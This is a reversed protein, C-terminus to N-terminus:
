NDDVCNYFVVGDVTTLLTKSLDQDNLVNIMITIDDRGCTKALDKCSNSMKIQNNVMTDWSEKAEENGSKALVTALSIQDEWVSILIMDDQTDVTYHQFSDEMTSEILSAVDETSMAVSSSDVAAEETPEPTPEVTPEPTPAPTETAVPTATPAPNTTETKSTPSLAIALVFLVVPIVINLPKQGASGLKEQIQPIPAVWAAAVLLFITSVSAGTGFVMFLLFAAVVWRLITKKKM